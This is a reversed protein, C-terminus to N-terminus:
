RISNVVTASCGPTLTGEFAATIFRELPSGQYRPTSFDATALIGPIDGHSAEIVGAERHWVSLTLHGQAAGGPCYDEAMAAYLAASVCDNGSPLADPASSPAVCHVVADNSGTAILVPALAEGRRPLRPLPSGGRPGPLNFRSWECWAAMAPSPDGACIGDFNGHTLGNITPGAALEPTVFPAQAFPAV